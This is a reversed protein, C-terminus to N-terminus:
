ASVCMRGVRRHGNEGELGILRRRRLQQVFELNGHAAALHLLRGSTTPTIGGSIVISAMADIPLV